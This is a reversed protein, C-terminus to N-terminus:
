KFRVSSPINVIRSFLDQAVKLETKLEDKYMPLDTMLNWIPRTMVGLNNTKELFLDRENQDKCLIANLWYNSKSNEPEVVFEIGKHNFFDKYLEATQRKNILFDPLKELQGLALAANLNPMRYNFGLEDHNFEWKHPIKATTTLHKAKKGLDEDQTVIAGGGGSTLIKNGNFSFVGLTGFLGTHIGDHYSGLSEAADEIVPIHYRSCIKVIEKIKTPHGFVHM